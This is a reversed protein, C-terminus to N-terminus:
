RAGPRPGPGASAPAVAKAYPGDWGDAFLRHLRAAIPRGRMVLGVNRSKEFYDGEWNSTGVWAAEADDVVLYKAHVVRGFPVDGGSWPPIHMLRVEVNLLSALSELPEIQGPKDQWDACLLRVAVGRGAARRLADDLARFPSGDRFTPKYSLLQVEVRRKASDLLAVLAPLDWLGDEGIRGRPSLAPTVLEQEGGVDIAVPFSAARVRPPRLEGGAFAWDSAFVEGLTAVVAPERVRVGLEQIHELSRWDFNQSGLYAERGDVVFYKAHLIGGMTRSADFRRVEIGKKAGLRAVLDPYKSLFIAEVLFHVAVGRGAAAEIARVVPELRSGPASVAYFEAIDLSRTAAGIMALWVDVANPIDPHDLNTELPASEVLELAPPAAAAPAASAAPATPRAVPPPAAPGCGAALGAVLLTLLAALRLALPRRPM